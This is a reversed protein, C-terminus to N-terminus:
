SLAHRRVHSPQWVDVAVYTTSAEAPMPNSKDVSVNFFTSISALSWDELSNGSAVAGVAVNLIISPPMPEVSSTPKFISLQEAIISPSDHEHMGSGVKLQRTIKSQLPTCNVYLPPVMLLKADFGYKPYQKYSREIKSQCYRIHLWNAKSELM